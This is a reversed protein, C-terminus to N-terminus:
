LTLDPQPHLGKEKALNLLVRATESATSYTGHEASDIALAYGIEDGEEIDESREWEVAEEIVFNGTEPLFSAVYIERETAPDILSMNGIAGYEEDYFLTEALLLVTFEETQPTSM